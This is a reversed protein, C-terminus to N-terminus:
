VEERRAREAESHLEGWAQLEELKDRVKLEKEWVDVLGGMEVRRQWEEVILELAQGVSLGGKLKGYVEVARLGDGELVVGIEVRKGEMIKGFNEKIIKRAELEARNELFNLEERLEERLEKERNM